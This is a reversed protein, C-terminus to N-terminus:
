EYRNDGIKTLTAKEIIAVHPRFYDICCYNSLITFMIFIVALTIIGAIALARVADRKSPM